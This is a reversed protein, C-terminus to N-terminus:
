SYWVRDEYFVRDVASLYSLDRQTALDVAGPVRVECLAGAGGGVNAYAYRVFPQVYMSDNPELVTNSTTEGDSWALAVPSAGYNYVWAHLGSCLARELDLDGSLVDLTFGRMGPMRSLRVMPWVRYRATARDPFYHADAPARRRVVVEERGTYAPLMLDGVEVDLVRAAKALEDHSVEQMEDFLRDVDVCAGLAECRLAFEERTLMENALHHELLQIMGRRTSRYQLRYRRARDGLVYLEKQARRTHGGFTIALIYAERAPDRTTFTHPWWPTNYSSDGTDLERAYRRGDIEHYFNIAGVYLTYQHLLHGKNFAVNADDPRAEGAFRLPRIWEPRFPSLRSLATDRYEYYSTRGGAADPREAVRSSAASESARMIRVGHTCDDRLVRLDAGDIPYVESMRDILRYLDEFGCEGALASRLWEPSVGLEAALMAPTRKLDNAESLIRAGILRQYTPTPM